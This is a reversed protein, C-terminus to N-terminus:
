ICLIIQFLKFYGDNNANYTKINIKWAQHEHFMKQLIICTHAINTPIPHFNTQM